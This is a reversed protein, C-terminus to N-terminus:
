SLCWCGGAAAARTFALARVPSQPALNAPRIIYRNDELYTVINQKRYTHNGLTIVDAGADFIADAQKPTIGVGSANEGNVITFDAGVQKKVRRLVHEVTQLGPQSVVDGVTLIKM